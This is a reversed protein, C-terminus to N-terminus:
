ATKKWRNLSMSDAVDWQTTLVASGARKAYMSGIASEQPRM